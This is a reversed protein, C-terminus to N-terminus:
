INSNPNSAAGVIAPVALVGASSIVIGFLAAAGIRSTSPRLRLSM